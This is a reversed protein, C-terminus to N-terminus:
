KRFVVNFISGSSDDGLHCFESTTALKYLLLALFLYFHITFLTAFIKPESSFVNFCIYFLNIYCIYMYILKADMPSFLYIYYKKISNLPLSYVIKLYIKTFKVWLM